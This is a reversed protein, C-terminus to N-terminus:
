KLQSQPIEVPSPLNESDCLMEILLNM